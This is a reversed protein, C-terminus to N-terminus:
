ERVEILSYPNVTRPSTQVLFIPLGEESVYGGILMFLNGAESRCEMPKGIARRIDNVTAQRWREPKYSTAGGWAIHCTPVRFEVTKGVLLAWPDDLSKVLRIETLWPLAVQLHDFFEKPTLSNKSM